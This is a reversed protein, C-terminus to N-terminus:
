HHPLSNQEMDQVLDRISEYANRISTEMTRAESARGTMLFLDKYGLAQQLSQAIDHMTQRYLAWPGSSAPRVHYRELIADACEDAVQIKWARVSAPIDATPLNKEFLDDVMTRIRLRHNKRREVWGGLATMPKKWQEIAAPDDNESKRRLDFATLVGEVVAEVLDELWSLELINLSEPRSIQHTAEGEEPVRLDFIVRLLARLETDLGIEM